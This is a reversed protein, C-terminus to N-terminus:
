QRIKVLKGVATIKNNQFVAVMYLGDPLSSLDITALGPSASGPVITMVKRGLMDVVMLETKDNLSNFQWQVVAQSLVPNPFIRVPSTISTDVVPVPGPAPDIYYNKTYCGNLGTVCWVMGGSDKVTQATTASLIINQGDVWAADTGAVFTHPVFRADDYGWQYTIGTTNNLCVYSTEDYIVRGTDSAASSSASVTLTDNAYAACQTSPFTTSAVIIASGGTGGGISVVGVSDGAFRIGANVFSDTMWGYKVSGAPNTSSLAFNLNSDSMCFPPVLPGSALYTFSPPTPLPNVTLTIANSPVTTNGTVPSPCQGTLVVEYQNGSITNHDPKTITLTQTNAGSYPATNPVMTFGGGLAPEVWWQFSLGTGVGSVTLQPAGSGSCVATPEVPQVTIAPPTNITITVTATVPASSCSNSAMITYGTAAAPTTPTGTIAGTSSNLSLGTPLGATGLAYLSPTGGTITPTNATIAGSPTPCYNVPTSYAVATPPPQPVVISVNAPTSGCSNTATVTYMLTSGTPTTPTGSFTGNGTNFTVGAPYTTSNIAWSTPAGGGGLTPGLSLPVGPCDSVLNGGNYSLSSPAAASTAIYITTTPGTACGSSATNYATITYQTSTSTVTPTGTIAGNTGLTLGTPLTPSVGYTITGSGVVTPTTTTNSVGECFNYPSGAPYTISTPAAGGTGSVVVMVPSSLGTGSITISTAAAPGSASPSYQVEITQPVAPTPVPVNTLSTVAPNFTQPTAPLAIEFDSSGSISVTMTGTLGSPATLTLPLVVKSGVCVTNFALPNASPTVTGAMPHGGAHADSVMFLSATALTISLFHLYLKKM